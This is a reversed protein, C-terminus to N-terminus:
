ENEGVLKGDIMCYTVVKQHPGAVLPQPMGVLSQKGQHYYSALTPSLQDYGNGISEERKKVVVDKILM